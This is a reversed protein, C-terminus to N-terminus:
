RIKLVKDLSLPGAGKVIMTILLTIWLLRQDMVLSDPFRDFWSGFTAADLGHGTKDVFSMVFIFGIMGIASLRTFLGIAILLPLLFEAAIGAIAILTYILGLESSDYGVADFAKPFMQIYAGDDPSLFGLIGEGSKTIASKWFFLPLVAIFAFRALTPLLWTGALRTILDVVKNYLSFIANM